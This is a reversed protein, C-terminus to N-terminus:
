YYNKQGNTYSMFLFKEDVFKWLNETKVIFLMIKKSMFSITLPFTSLHILSDLDPNHHIFPFLIAVHSYNISLNHYFFYIFIVFTCFDRMQLKKKELNGAVHPM